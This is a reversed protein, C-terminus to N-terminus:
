VVQRAVRDTVFYVLVVLAAAGAAAALANRKWLDLAQEGFRQVLWALGYYRVGRAIVAAAVFLHLPYGALGASIMAVQFPIPLVGVLLIALFGHRSFFQQFSQYADQYGMGEIFWTGVSQYLAMGVGYGVLSAVLCGALTVHALTWIRDRSMLMLPVLILEIPIPIIITEFFSLTAMLWLVHDSGRIRRVWRDARASTGTPASM